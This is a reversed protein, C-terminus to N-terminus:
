RSRERVIYEGVDDGRIEWRSSDRSRNPGFSYIFVSRRKPYDDCRDRVWYPSNWPDLFYEAREEPMGGATLGAFTGDALDAARDKQEAFTYLRKHLGCKTISARGESKALAEFDHALARAEAQARDVYSPDLSTRNQSWAATAFGLAVVFVPLVAARPLSPESQAEALDAANVMAAFLFGFGLACETVEGTFKWPYELHIWFIAFMAPTLALPPPVIVLKDFVRRAAPVLSLLPLVVGYGVIIARFTWVRISRSAINHVNIEQQYNEALFYEPPMHGFVRQGWSIEEMAVFVSFLALGALFWPVRREFRWQRVAAIAFVGGAVFFSWFSAWELAQDEQTAAYYRSPHADQLWGCFALFGLVAFNAALAVRGSM